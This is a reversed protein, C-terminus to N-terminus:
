KREKQEWNTLINLSAETKGPALMLFRQGDHNPSFMAVNQYIQATVLQMDFLTKPPDLAAGSHADLRVMSAMMAPKAPLQVYFIEKGDPRWQALRGHNTSVKWPGPGSPFARLYIDSGTAQVATYILWHGDPSLMAESERVGPASVRVAKKAGLPDELYWIGYTGDAELQTYVMYRMDRSWDSPVKLLDNRILLTEGSGAMSRAYIGNGSQYAIMSGDGSFIPGTGRMNPSAFPTMAGTAVDYLSIGKFEFSSIATKGDPSLGISNNRLDNGLVGLEKGTRDVWVMRRDWSPNHGVALIGNNSAGVLMQPLNQNYSGGQTVAFTDGALQLKDPDFPQAMVVDDRLFLIYGKDGTVSPAYVPGAADPLLRHPTPDDLSAWAIGRRSEESGVFLLFHKGDPLFAPYGYTSDGDPKMVDRCEGGSANVRRIPKGPGFPSFLIVGDRSWTGGTGPLTAGDCLTQVPGGAAPITKLKNDQYFGIMKSDPSWFPARIRGGTELRKLEPSDLSRLYVGGDPGGTVFVMQRGDPSLSLFGVTGTTPLKVSLNLPPTAAAPRRWLTFGATATTLLFLAAVIWAIRDFKASRPTAAESAESPAHQLVIRAEGIDRLRTKPNRDLCREILRRMWRPTEAPLRNLDIPGRLVEAITQTVTEGTFLKAGSLMEFLVVGFSWIDSRKDVPKGAAQEPSMYGATGLIVGVSTAALTTPSNNPDIDHAARAPATALGFDLVKIAGDPTVMVNGPKLDRHTIGKEHAVELAEAIQRAYDTATEVAVPCQLTTGPVFEMVLAGVGNSEELGYIQAINSHNLSALVKAERTFRSLREVDNAFGAPLVKIAVERDLKLDRARWVEGMGGKGIPSLIEYPGFRYGPSIPM